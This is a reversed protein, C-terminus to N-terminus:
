RQIGSGTGGDIVGGGVPEGRVRQYLREFGAVSFGNMREKGFTIVPVGTGGLKRYRRAARENKEIDYETFDLGNARFYSRAKKCYGCWQTSYMVLRDEPKAVEGYTVEDLTNIKGLGVEQSEVSAPKNRKDGFHVNGNEDTWKYIQGSAPGALAVSLMIPIAKSWHM